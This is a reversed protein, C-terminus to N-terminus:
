DSLDTLEGGQILYKVIKAICNQDYKIGGHNSGQLTYDILNFINDGKLLDFNAERKHENFYSLEYSEKEQDTLNQSRLFTYVNQKPRIVILQGKFLSQLYEYQDLIDAESIHCFANPFWVVKLNKRLILKHFKNVLPMWNSLSGPPIIVIDVKDLITSFTTECTLTQDMRTEFSYSSLEVRNGEHFNIAPNKISVEDFNSEGSFKNKLQDSGYLRIGGNCLLEQYVGRPILALNKLLGFFLNHPTTKDALNKVKHYLQSHLYLFSLLLNGISHGQDRPNLRSYRVYSEIFESLINFYREDNEFFANPKRSLKALNNLVSFSENMKIKVEDTSVKSAFLNRIKEAENRRYGSKEWLKGAWRSVQSKLDGLPPPIVNELDGGAINSILRYITQDRGSQSHFLWEYYELLYGTHGGDDWQSQFAFVEYNGDTVNLGQFFKDWVASAHGSLALILLKSM